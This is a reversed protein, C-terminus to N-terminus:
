LTEADVLPEDIGDNDGTWHGAEGAAILAARVTSFGGSNNDLWLAAAGAVHPSAMSTGSITKYGGKKWLSPVSVAPATLDIVSGYNSYYYFNDNSDIGSVTIVNNFAAPSYNAANARSNGAAVVFTVGTAGAIANYMATSYGGGSLSMNAVKINYTSANASVWNIGAIVSAYSGSGRRNLVKVAIITANPAVGIYGIDNDVAAITGAVHTGHGNDDDASKDVNIFNAGDVVGSLDPHDLDVGTDIVAVGVGSGGSGGSGGDGNVPNLDADIRDYGWPWEQPPPSDSGGGGGGGPGGLPKGKSIWVPMDLEIFDVRPDAKLQAQEGPTLVGAFGVLAHGYSFEPRTGLGQSMSSVDAITSGPKLVVIYKGAGVQSVTNTTPLLTQSGGGCGVLAAALAAIAIMKMIRM